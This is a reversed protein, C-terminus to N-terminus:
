YAKNLTNQFEAKTQRKVLNPLHLAIETSNILKQNTKGDKKIKIYKNEETPKTIEHSNCDKDFYMPKNTTKNLFTSFKPIFVNNKLKCLSDKNINNIPTQISTGDDNIPSNITFSKSNKNFETGQILTGDTNMDCKGDIPVAIVEITCQQGACYNLVEQKNFQVNEGSTNLAFFPAHGTFVSNYGLTELQTQTTGPTTNYTENNYVYTGESNEPLFYQPTETGKTVKLFVLTKMYYHTKLYSQMGDTDLASPVPNLNAQVGAEFNELFTNTSSFYPKCLGGNEPIQKGVEYKELVPSTVDESVPGVIVYDQNNSPWYYYDGFVPISEGFANEGFVSLSSSTDSSKGYIKYIGSNESDEFSHAFGFGACLVSLLIFFSIKKYDM